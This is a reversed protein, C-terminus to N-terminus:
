SPWDVRFFVTDKGYVLTTSVTELSDNAFSVLLAYTNPIEPRIIDHFVEDTQKTKM